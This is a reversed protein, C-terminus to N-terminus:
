RISLSVADSCCSCIMQGDQWLTKVRSSCCTEARFEATLKYVDTGKIELYMEHRATYTRITKSNNDIQFEMSYIRGVDYYLKIDSATYRPSASFVLDAGTTKDILKFNFNNTHTICQISSCDINPEDCQNNSKKCSFALSVFVLLFLVIRM